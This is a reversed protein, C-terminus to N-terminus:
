PLLDEADMKVANVEVKFPNLSHYNNLPHLNLRYSLTPLTDVYTKLVNIVQILISTQVRYFTDCSSFSFHKHYIECVRESILIKRMSCTCNDGDLSM